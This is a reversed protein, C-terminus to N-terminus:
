VTQCLKDLEGFVEGLPRLAESEQNKQVGGSERGSGKIGWLKTKPGRNNEVKM